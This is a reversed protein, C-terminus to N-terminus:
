EIQRRGLSALIKEAGDALLRRALEAGIRTADDVAGRMEGRVVTRGDLSCVVARLHIQGNGAPEAIAGIPVQCGGELGALLAREAEVCRRTAADDLASVVRRAEADGKRIEVALAGQGVAPLMINYPIVQLNQPALHLRNLGAHAVVIADLRGEALKRLRTDLNGRFEQVELDPRAALLQARRRLSSTGIKAGQPLAQLGGPARSILVDHPDEREPVAGIDLDPHMETPLDKMSHVALAAEGALLANEIEKTFLGKGGVSAFPLDRHVDGKTTITKIEFTIAPFRRRLEGVVWQTQTLALKSGRTGIIFTRKSITREEL